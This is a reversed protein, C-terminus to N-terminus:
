VYATPKQNGTMYLSKAYDYDLENKAATKANGTGDISLSKTVISVRKNVKSTEREQYSQKMYAALTDIIYQDLETDFTNGRTDYKLPTLEVSYRAVAKKLWMLELDLPIVKKDAFSSEFSDIVDQACTCLTENGYTNDM